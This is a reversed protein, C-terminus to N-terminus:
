LGLLLIGALATIAAVLTSAAGLAFPRWGTSILKRVEVGFGLGLMAATLLANAGFEAVQLMEPPLPLFTRALVAALFGAVFLPILPPRETTLDRGGRRNEYASVSMILPALLVVRGLKAVVAIALAAAGIMGGAAAVQAVEHVSAGVWIGSQMDTLGLLPALVPLLLMAITGFITVLAIAQATDEEAEGDPDVIGSMAAVASAGCISFGTAVLMRTVRPVRLARGIGLTSLFTVVVTILLVAVGHVGIQMLSALSLKFGLLVIGIRLFKKSTWSISRAAPAPVVRLNGILAGVAIAILLASLAPVISALWLIGLTVVLTVVAVVGHKRSTRLIVTTVRGSQHVGGHRLFGSVRVLPMPKM